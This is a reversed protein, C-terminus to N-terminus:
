GVDRTVGELLAAALEPVADLTTTVADPVAPCVVTASSSSLLITAMGVSRAGAIDCFTDDGVFVCRCSPLGLRRLAELFPAAAPKGGPAHEEAFVVHDVLTDLGLAHVKAAQVRPLGNTLIATHWGGARVRRLMAEAGDALTLRPQHSRFVEVLEPVITMPLGYASCLAQLERGHAGTQRAFQLTERVDAAAVGFRAEVHAAVAAFGGAVFQEHPYLTDDLDFILGRVEHM